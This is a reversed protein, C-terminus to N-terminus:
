SQFYFYVPHAQLMKYGSPLSTSLFVFCFVCLYPTDFPCLLWSVSNGAALAPVIQPVFDVFYYHVMVWLMFYTDMHDCQCLHNFLNIFPPSSAFRGHQSNWIFETFVGGWLSSLWVGGVRLHLSHM